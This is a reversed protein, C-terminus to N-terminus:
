RNGLEDALRLGTLVAELFDVFQGYPRRRSGFTSTSLSGTPSGEFINWGGYVGILDFTLELGSREAIHGVLREVNEQRTMKPM